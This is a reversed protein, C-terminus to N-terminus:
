KPNRQIMEVNLNFIWNKEFTVSGVQQAEVRTLLPLTNAPPHLRLTEHIFAYLFPANDSAVEVVDTIERVEEFLRLQLAQHFALRMIMWGITHASTETGALSFIWVDAVAEDETLPESRQNSYPSGKLVCM